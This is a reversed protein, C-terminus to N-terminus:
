MREEKMEQRYKSPMNRGQTGTLGFREKIDKYIEVNTMQTTRLLERIRKRVEPNNVRTPCVHSPPPEPSPTAGTQLSGPAPAPTPLPSAVSASLQTALKAALRERISNANIVPM